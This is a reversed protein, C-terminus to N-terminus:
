PQISQAASAPVFKAIRGEPGVAWGLKGDPTFAVSHLPATDFPKWTRGGDVSMDSGTTGVAVLLHAGLVLQNMYAVGSRYGNPPHKECPTWTKGGDTTTAANGGIAYPIKFDGGVMVGNNEDAFALSFVGASAKGAIMPTEAIAWHQGFDSTCLVRAAAGGTGIWARGDGAVAVCTGSAAFGNEGERAM